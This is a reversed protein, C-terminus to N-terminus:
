QSDRTVNLDGTHTTKATVGGTNGAKNSIKIFNHFLSLSAVLTVNSGSDVHMIISSTALNESKPM